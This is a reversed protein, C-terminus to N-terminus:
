NKKSKIINFFNDWLTSINTNMWPKSTEIYIDEEIYMYPKLSDKEIPKLGEYSGYRAFNRFIKSMEDSIKMEIKTDIEAKEPKSFRNWINESLFAYITDSGHPTVKKEPYDGKGDDPYLHVSPYNFKYCQISNNNNMKLFKLADMSM